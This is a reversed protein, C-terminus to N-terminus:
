NEGGAFEAGTNFGQAWALATWEALLDTADQGRKFRASLEEMLVKSSIAQSYAAALARLTEEDLPGGDLARGQRVLDIHRLAITAAKQAAAENIAM